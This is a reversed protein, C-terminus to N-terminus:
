AAGRVDIKGTVAATILASRRERLLLVFRETKFILTDIETARSQLYEVIRAQEEVPPLPIKLGRLDAMGITRLTAGDTLSQFYPQMSSTFLWWLYSPLLRPGCIWDAFHQSTAMQGDMISSRGITADRSLVVTGSPLVRASSAAIGADSVLHVTDSIYQNITLNRVDNLSIWPIYCDEWLEPRTRSPTHGSEMRAFDKLRVVQWHSPIQEAWFLGSTKLKSVVPAGRSVAAHVTSLRRQGLTSVLMLQKAILEDIQATERDLFDAIAIQEAGCPVAVPFNATFREPVRKLGGAGTMAARGLQQFRHEQTLYYLYRADASQPRLVTLETTGFGVGGTLGRLLAGKGNEFCPTVKAFVVDGDAFFSYGTQVDRVLRLQGLAVSGDEGIAEMPLFSVEDQPRVRSLASGSPNLTALSKLPRVIWDEPISPLWGNGSARYSPYPAPIM